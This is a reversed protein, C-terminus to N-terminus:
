AHAQGEIKREERRCSATFVAQFVPVIDGAYEEGALQAVKELIQKERWKGRVFRPIFFASRFIWDLVMAVWVGKVGWNLGLALAITRAIRTVELTHTLRTRYHDGEPQLFVQTKHMLRRFAKSHVIKDTDRQYVTRVDEFKPEEPHLRGKTEDSFAARPDLQQHELIELEERITM